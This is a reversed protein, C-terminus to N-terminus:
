PQASGDAAPQPAGDAAPEASGDVSPQVSGDVSPQASPPTAGAPPFGMPTPAVPLQTGQFVEGEVSVADIFWQEGVQVCQMVVNAPGSPAALVGSLRVTTQQGANINRGTFTIGTQDTMMPMGEVTQRFAALDHDSRYTESMRDYAGEVNGNRLDDFFATGTAVAGETMMMGGGICAGCVGLCSVVGIIILLLAVGCGIAVYKVVTRGEAM